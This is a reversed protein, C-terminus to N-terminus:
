EWKQCSRCICTIIFDYELTRKANLKKINIVKLKKNIEYEIVAIV